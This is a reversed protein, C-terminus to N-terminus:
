LIVEIETGKGLKSSLKIDGGHAKVIDKAIAMGLGSGKHREGTNTGRYYREFIYKIEEPNIGKGNDRVFIHVNEDRIIEVDIKVNEDNHILANYILNNIVRKILTDDVEKIISNEESVFNVDRNSYIPDNLIDIVAERVLKVINIERLKLMSKNNKIRTTFNLDDVLAKIYNAKKDIVDTYSKSEEQSLEYEGSLLEAYGKISALPTKIDHSINAIWEERMKDLKKREKENEKLTDSLNNLNYNVDKYIGKTPYKINYDGEGLKEVGKIIKGIPKTLRRSFLYGFILAIISDVFLVITSIRRIVQLLGQNTFILVQKEVTRGPFGMIYSYQVNNIVKDGLFITSADNLEDIYKYSHVLQIPTYKNPVVEPKQYNYVEKSNQDLVQIWIDNEELIKKGEDSVYLQNENNFIFHDFNRVFQEPRINQAMVEDRIQTNDNVLMIGIFIAFINIIMVILVVSIVTIVFKFTLKWKM